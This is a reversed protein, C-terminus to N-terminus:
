LEGAVPLDPALGARSARAPRRRRVRDRDRGLWRIALVVTTQVIAVGLCLAAIQPFTGSARFATLITPGTVPNTTASSLFVSASTESFGVVFVIVWGALLGGRMLPVLIRVFTRFQSAGAMLSGEWMERGVQSFASGASRTAQPLTVVLYALLLILLTGQLRVIGIGFALLFAVGTVMNPISAPLATLGNVIRSLPGRSTAVKYVIISAILMLVTATTLGLILSNFFSRGLLSTGAFIDIYNQFSLLNWQIAPTWYGQLSLLTLGVAPLVTAIILYAIVIARAVWRWPGLSNIARGRGKGGIKAHHGSRSILYEGVVALQVIALMFFSLVIMEDFRPGGEADIRRYILSALVDYGGQSGLIVPISFLSIVHILALVASTAVANRVAPLTVKLLTRIPSAGSMRSAEELAPDMNRLAAAITLYTLPVTVIIIVSTMGISGYINFPGDGFPEGGFVMRLFANIYGATPALLVVWGIATAIPPILLPVIPLTDAAWGMRADTRENFWALVGGIIVCAPVAVVVVTLTNGLVPWLDPDQFTRVFGNLEFQGDPFFVYRLLVILPYIVLIGMFIITVWVVSGLVPLRSLRQLIGDRQQLPSLGGTSTPASM